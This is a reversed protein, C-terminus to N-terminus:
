KLLAPNIDTWINQVDDYDDVRELFDSVKELQQPTIEKYMKPVKVLDASIVIYGLALIQDRVKGMNEVATFVDLGTGEELDADQIDMAGDLEMLELMVQEKDVELIEDPAGYKQSKQVKGCRVTVLGKQEFNWSVAGSEALNGGGDNFINRIDAIARNRNETLVDVIVQVGEPAFGEYSVAEFIVGDGNKGSGREIARKINEMPMSESRAKDVLLRLTPNADPDAGGEKASVTILQAYKSFVKGKKADELAKKHKITSWKSHGSM